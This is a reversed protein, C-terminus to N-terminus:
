GQPLMPWPVSEIPPEKRQWIGENPPDIENCSQRSPDLVRPSAPPNPIIQRTVPPWYKANVSPRLCRMESILSIVLPVSSSCLMCSELSQDLAWWCHM